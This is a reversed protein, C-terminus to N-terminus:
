EKPVVAGAAQRHRTRHRIGTGAAACRPFRQKIASLTANTIMDCHGAIVLDPEFADVTDLLRVNAKKTGLERIGLPAEFAAVDRDSFGQVYHDNKILGFTLKQAWSVRTKGYRRLQQYAREGNQQLQERSLTALGSGAM